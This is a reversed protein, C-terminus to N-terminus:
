RGLPTIKGNNIAASITEAIACVPSEGKNIEIKFATFNTGVVNRVIFKLKVPIKTESLAPNYGYEMDAQDDHHYDYIYCQKTTINDDFTAQMVEDSMQKLQQGVTGVSNYRKQMDEFSPM